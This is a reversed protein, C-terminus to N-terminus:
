FIRIGLSRLIEQGDRGLLQGKTLLSALGLVGGVAFVVVVLTLLASGFPRLALTCSWVTLATLVGMALGPLHARLFVGLPMNVAQLAWYTMGAYQLLLSILVATAIGPLGYPAAYISGGVVACAYMVQPWLLQAMHGKAFLVSSSTKVSFRLFLGFGLIQFTPLVASWQEGLLVAVIEPAALILVVSLPLGLLATLATGKRLANAMRAPDDQVRAMAPFIVRSLASGYFNTPMAMLKYARDYLGLAEAGLFKGAVANDGQLAIAGIIRALLFGFSVNSLDKAARRHIQPRCDHRAAWLFIASRLAIQSIVGGVLAWVGFDMAALALSIVAYGLIYSALEVSAVFKFRLSRGLLVEATDGLAQLVFTLTMVRLIPTLGDIGLFDEFVPALAFVILGTLLSLSLSLTFTTRVHTGDIEKLQILAQKLGGQWVISLLSTVITAAAILGFDKPALLRSLIAILGLQVGIQSMSAAVSWAMGRLTRQTM